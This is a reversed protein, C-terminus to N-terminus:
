RSCLATNADFGAPGSDAFGVVHTADVKHYFVAGGKSTIATGATDRVATGDNAFSFLAFTVPEDAGPNVLAQLAASSFTAQDTQNANDVNGTSLDTDPNNNGNTIAPSSIGWRM